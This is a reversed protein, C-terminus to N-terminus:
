LLDWVRTTVAEKLRPWVKRFSSKHGDSITLRSPAISRRDLFDAVRATLGGTSCGYIAILSVIILLSLFRPIIRM